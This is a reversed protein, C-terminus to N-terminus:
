SVLRFSVVYNFVLSSIQFSFLEPTVVIVLEADEEEGDEFARLKYTTKSVVNLSRNEEEDDNERKRIGNSRPVKAPPPARKRGAAAMACNGNSNRRRELTVYSPIDRDRKIKRKYQRQSIIRHFVGHNYSKSM